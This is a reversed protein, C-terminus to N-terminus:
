KPEVFICKMISLRTWDPDSNELHAIAALYPVAKNIPVM